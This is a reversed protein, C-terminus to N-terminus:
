RILWTREIISDLGREKFRPNGEIADAESLLQASSGYLRRVDSTTVCFPPGSMRRSDYELTVLLQVGGPKLLHRIQAVYAERVSPELAVLAARDWVADAPTGLESVDVTFIDATILDIAASKFHRGEKLYTLGQEQFFTEVAQPVLEVGVVEHGKEALWRLDLSKGCLPVLVRKQGSLHAYFRVLEPHAQNIHFGIRGEAWADFWRKQSEADSV